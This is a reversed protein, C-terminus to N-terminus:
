ACTRSDLRALEMVSIATRTPIVHVLGLGASEALRQYEHRTRERGTTMVMMNLDTLAIDSLHAPRVAAIEAPAVPVIREIVLLRAAPSMADRCNRLLEVAHADDWDHLVRSLLYADGDAPVQTFADGALVTGREALGAAAIQQQAAAAVLPLEFVVGRADGYQELIGILLRGDGGGVDIIMRAGAFSCSALINRVYTQTFGAMARAFLAGHGPHERCYTWLDRGHRHAFASEGTTVTHMLGRWADQHVDGLMLLAWDRLSASADQRLTAGVETLAFAGEISLARLLRHLCSAQTGTAAALASSSRPGDALLDPIGLAVVVRIAQAVWAGCIMRVMVDTPLDTSREPATSM